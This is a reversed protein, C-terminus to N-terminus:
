LTLRGQNHRLVNCPDYVVVLGSSKLLIKQYFAAFEHQRLMHTGAPMCYLRLRSFEHKKYDADIYIQQNYLTETQM